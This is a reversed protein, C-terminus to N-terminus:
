THGTFNVLVGLGRERAVKLALDYDDLVVLSGAQRKVGAPLALSGASSVVEAKHTEVLGRSYSPPPAMASMITEDLHYGLVGMFCYASGILTVLGGCLRGPGIEGDPSEGKLNIRGFLYMAAALGIAAWMMLFVERPLWGAQLAIDANSFFKLAAALEVFGMFVKLTNMWGGASPIASLRSPILALVVFPAAMTAGFVGMGIVIRMVGGSAGAAILTGVFPGTCTFSTIVLTLGMLFVGYIGGTGSAKGAAGMLFAPPNLNIAGFLALAFVVFLVGIFLNTVYHTAFPVLLPGALVGLLVFMLVIGLGYVSALLLANGGREDAQKTFFSITIPIMPYTCPMLLTFLGAGIALLIFELLGESETEQGFSRREGDAAPAEITPTSGAAGVVSEAVDVAGSEPAADAGASPAADPEMDAGAGGSAAQPLTWTAFAAAFLADSGAGVVEVGSLNVPLCSGDDCSQGDLSIELDGPDFEDFAEGRLAFHFLGEHAWLWGKEEDAADQVYRFPEPYHVDEDWDVNGGEVTVTTPSGIGPGMDEASPGHYMHWHEPTAVQVVLEVIEGDDGDLVRAFARAAAAEDGFAPSWQLPDEEPEALLSEPFGEWVSEPGAGLTALDEDFPLCQNENCVQGEVLAGVAGADVGAAAAGRAAAFFYTKKDFVRAPGYGVDPKVKPEPYWVESWEAGEVEGLTVTTPLGGVESPDGKDYVWCGYSPRIQIAVLVDDGAAKSFLKVKVDQAIAPALTGFAILLLSLLRSM